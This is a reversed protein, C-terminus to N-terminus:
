RECRFAQTDAIAAARNGLPNSYERVLEPRRADVVKITYAQNTLAAAFVWWHDNIDCGNLLKVTVEWNGPSFFWFLSTEDTGVRVPTAHGSASATRWEVATQFRGLLCTGEEPGFGPFALGCSGQTPQAHECTITTEFTGVEGANFGKTVVAYDGASLGVGGGGAPISSTGTSLPGDDNVALRNTTPSLADFPARYLAVVGDFSQVSSVTCTTNTGIWFIQTAYPAPEEASFGFPALLAGGPSVNGLLTQAFDGLETAQSPVGLCLAFVASTAFRSMSPRM